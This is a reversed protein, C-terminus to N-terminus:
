AAIDSLLLMDDAPDIIGALERRCEDCQMRYSEFGCADILPHPVRSFMLPTRCTPCVVRQTDQAANPAEVDAALCTDAM